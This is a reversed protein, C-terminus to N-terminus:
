NLVVSFIAPFKCLLGLEFDNILKWAFQEEELTWKGSVQGNENQLDDYSRKNARFM